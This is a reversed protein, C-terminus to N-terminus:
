RPDISSAGVIARPGLDEGLRELGFEGLLAAIRSRHEVIEARADVARANAVAEGRKM